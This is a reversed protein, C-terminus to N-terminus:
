DHARATAERVKMEEADTLHTPGLDFTVNAIKGNFRFPVQYDQDNVGTRTDIGVDFSEDGPLLFLVTKPIQLTRVEKGDVKL